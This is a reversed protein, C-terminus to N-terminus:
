LIHMNIQNHLHNLPGHGNGVKVEAGAILGKELYAKANGVAVRLPLGQALFAAIASSLTCGTGHTNVTDVFAGSFELVTDKIFLYDTMVTGEFHGGKILVAKAGDALIKNGVLHIDKEDEITLGSLLEAEHRNPTIIKALPILKSILSDIAEESILRDGSTSIMVPDLVINNPKYEALKDAIVDIIEQSFLMGLKVADVKIDNFVA